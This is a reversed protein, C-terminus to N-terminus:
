PSCYNLFLLCSHLMIKKQPNSDLLSSSLSNSAHLVLHFTYLQTSLFTLADANIQRLLLDYLKKEQDFVALLPQAREPDLLMNILAMKGAPNEILEAGNTALIIALPNSTATLNPTAYNIYAIKYKLPM